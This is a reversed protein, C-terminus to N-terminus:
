FNGVNNGQSSSSFLRAHRTGNLTRRLEEVLNERKNRLLEVLREDAKRVQSILDGDVEENELRSILADRTEILAEWEAWDENELAEELAITSLLLM